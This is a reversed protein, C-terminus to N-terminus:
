VTPISQAKCAAVTSAAEIVRVGDPANMSLAYVADAVWARGREDINTRILRAYGYGRILAYQAAVCDTYADIDASARPHDIGVRFAALEDDIRITQVGLYSPMAVPEEGEIVPPVERPLTTCASM